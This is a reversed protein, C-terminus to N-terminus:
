YDSIIGVLIKREGKPNISALFNAVGMTGESTNFFGSLVNLVILSRLHILCVRERPDRAAQLSRYYLWYMASSCMNLNTISWESVSVHVHPVKNFWQISSASDENTARSPIPM